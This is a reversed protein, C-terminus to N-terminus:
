RDDGNRLEIVIHISNKCHRCYVTVEGKLSQVPLVHECLPCRYIEQPPISMETIKKRKKPSDHAM